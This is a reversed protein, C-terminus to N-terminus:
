AEGFIAKVFSQPNFEQLDEMKEGVGILKVPVNLERSIGVIVGGKATGDLKTLILGSINAVEKFTKAQQVANQGTTADLVLLVEKSANEYERDVVKFIKGLENMLNKKNHLRGATDCILVDTNRAKAAQIADYIVAAPDSEEQHRIVDVGVRDGWIKLQDIAAARFTDGAALLVKKGESKFRYAMKGISTTKGVGNVGVVLIIAPSPEINIKSDPLEELIETIKDMLLQKVELPDSIKEKRVREKLDEVIEMTTQVGMDSTILIEELEEFLDEDIKKYSKLLHDVRDTIGSKTKLLGEKLRSFLNFKPKAEVVEEEVTEAVKIPEIEEIVEEVTEIIDEEIKEEVIEEVIEEEVEEAETSDEVSDVELDEFYKEMEQSDMEIDEPDMEIFDVEELSSHEHGDVAEDVKEEHNKEVSEEKNKGTLKDFFKKFM